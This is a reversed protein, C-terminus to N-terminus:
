MRTSVGLRAATARDITVPVELGRNQQDSSIDRLEPMERMARVLRPAWTNLLELDDSQLTYQYQAQSIRGGLRVDQTAQLFLTAGPVQALKPRLRAIVEDASIKREARPKLSVFMRGTNSTTGRGGGGGTFATAAEVAPDKQVIDVFR